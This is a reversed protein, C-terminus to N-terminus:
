LTPDKPEENSVITKEVKTKLKSYLTELKNIRAQSENM